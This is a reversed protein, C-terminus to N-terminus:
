QRQKGVRSRPHSVHARNRTVVPDRQLSDHPGGRRHRGFWGVRQEAEFGLHWVVSHQHQKNSADLCRRQLPASLGCRRGDLRQKGVHGVGTGARCQRPDLRQRSVVRNRRLSLVRRRRWWVHIGHRFRKERQKGMDRQRINDHFTDRQDMRHRQLSAANRGRWRGLRGEWLLGVRHLANRFTVSPIVKWSPPPVRRHLNGSAAQRALSSGAPSSNSPSTPAACAGIVLAGAAVVRRAAQDLRM